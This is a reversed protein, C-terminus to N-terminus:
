RAFKGKYNLFFREFTYFSMTAVAISSFLVAFFLTESPLAFEFNAAVRLVIGKCIMHLLYIGYSVKGIHDLLRANLASALIKNSSLLFSILMGAASIVFGHGGLLSTELLYLTLAVMAPASWPRGFAIRLWKETRLGRLLFACLAGLWIGIPAVKSMVVQDGIDLIIGTILLTTIGIVLVAAKKQDCIALLPALVLYFQEEAALSWAFYFIVRGDLPIFINSTYTAFYKLNSLFTAGIETNSEQTFVLVVYLTLVAYYLPFIRLSRRAFFALLDLRGTRDKEKLLLTTILFGSILFFLTVGHFGYGLLKLFYGETSATHSWVVAIISIARLGNLCEFHHTNAYLESIENNEVLKHSNLRVQSKNEEMILERIAHDGRLSTNTTSYEVVCVLKVVV